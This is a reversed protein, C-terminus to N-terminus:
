RAAPLRASVDGLEKVAARTTGAATKRQEAAQLATEVRFIEDPHLIEAAWLRRYPVSSARALKALSLGAERAREDFPQM